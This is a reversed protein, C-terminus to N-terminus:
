KFGLKGSSWYFSVPGYPIILYKAGNKGKRVAGLWIRGSGTNDGHDILRLSVQKSNYGRQGGNKTTAFPWEDCSKGSISYVNGKCEAKYRLWSRDQNAGKKYTVLPSTPIGNSGRGQQTDSIHDKAEKHNSGIAVFNPLKCKKADKRCNNVERKLTASVRKSVVLSTAIAKGIYRRGINVTASISIRALGGLGSMMGGLSFNGSPDIHNM